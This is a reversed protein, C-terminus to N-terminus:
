KGAIVISAKMMHHPFLYRSRIGNRDFSMVQLLWYQPVGNRMMPIPDVQTDSYDVRLLAIDAPTMNGCRIRDLVSHVSEKRPRYHERLLFTRNPVM